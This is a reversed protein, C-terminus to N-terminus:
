AAGPTGETSDAAAQLESRWAQWRDSQCPAGRYCVDYLTRLPPQLLRQQVPRDRLEAVLERPTLARRAALQGSARLTWEFAAWRLRMADGFRQDAACAEAAAVLADLSAAGLLVGERPRPTTDPSRTNRYMRWSTWAAHATALVLGTVLVGFIVRFVWPHLNEFSLLWDNLRQALRTLWTEADSPTAWRYAPASFVRAAAEEIVQPSPLEQM